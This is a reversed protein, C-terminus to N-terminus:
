GSTDRGDIRNVICEEESPCEYCECELQITTHNISYKENLMKNLNELVERGVHPTKGDLLVHVTLIINSSSLTWIHLDHVDLVGPTKLIDQNILDYDISSPVGEFIINMGEKVVTYAGRLIILGVVVSIIPDAIYNGTFMMILGGAIVGMSALMDGVVHLFASKVNLNSEAARHLRLAVVMNVVLGVVAVLLMPLTKVQEPEILRKYAEHFILGAIVILTIGNILAAIVEARHYGFTKRTSAPLRSIFLAGLSLGLALMDAFVHGADSLLALSNSLIGGILEAFFIIATLGFAWGMRNVLYSHSHNHGSKYTL